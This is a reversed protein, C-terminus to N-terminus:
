PGSDSRRASPQIAEAMMSFYGTYLRKKLQEFTLSFDSWELFIAGMFLMFNEAMSRTDAGPRIIGSKQQQLLFGHLMKTQRARFDYFISRSETFYMNCVNRCFEPNIEISQLERGIMGVSADPDAPNPTATLCVYQSYETVAETIALHRPGVLNYITQVAHGSCEAVRRVTIGQHGEDMLLRRISALIVSRRHRQNQGFGDTKGLHGAPRLIPQAPDFVLMPVAAAATQLGTANVMVM